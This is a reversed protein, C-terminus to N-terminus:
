GFGSSQEGNAGKSSTVISSTPWVVWSLAPSSMMMTTTSMMHAPSNCEVLTELCSIEVVLWWWGNTVQWEKRRGAWTHDSEEAALVVDDFVVLGIVVLVFGFVGGLAASRLMRRPPQQATLYLGGLGRRRGRPSEGWGRLPTPCTFPGPWEQVKNKEGWRRKMCVWPTM